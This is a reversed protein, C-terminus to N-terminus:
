RDDNMGFMRFLEVRSNIGLKKYLEATHTKVTSESLGLEGAIQRRTKAQLLLRAVEIQRPTLEYAAFPDEPAAPPIAEPAIPPDEPSPEQTEANEPPADGAPAPMDNAHLRGFWPTSFLYKYSYPALILALLVVALVAALTAAPVMAPAFNEVLDDSFNAVPSVICFILTCKKLLRYSAFQRHACSLMYMSLPWGLITLGGFFYAPKESGFRPALVACVGLGVAAFFVINWVHWVNARIVGLLVVLAALSLMAGLLQWRMEPRYDYDVIGWVYGDIMFYAIFYAMAWYLGKTDAPTSEKKVELDPEKFLLLCVCMGALLALALAKGFWSPFLDPNSYRIFNCVFHMVAMGYLREANNLAFAYGCRASTVAGGLGAYAVLGAILRGTGEPLFIYPLFGAVCVAVSGRVLPRFRESWLLMVLLSAAGHAIMFWTYGRIGLFSAGVPLFHSRTSFLLLEFVYALAYKLRAPRINGVRLDDDRKRLTGCASQLRRAYANM